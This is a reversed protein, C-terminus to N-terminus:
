DMLVMTHFARGGAKTEWRTTCADQVLTANRSLLMAGCAACLILRIAPAWTFLTLLIELTILVLTFGRKIPRAARLCHCALDSLLLHM